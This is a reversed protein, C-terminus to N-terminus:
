WVYRVGASLVHSTNGGALDGDYRLYVSTREAVLTNAGLGLVVGDRPATAGFTTFGIAPAGAFAASVPRATDAFEHSWGLRLVVNLKERWPADLGAGLQSLGVV